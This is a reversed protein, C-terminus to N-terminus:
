IYKVVQVVTMECMFKIVIAKLRKVIKDINEKRQFKSRFMGNRQKIIRFNEVAIVSCHLSKLNPRGVQETSGQALNGEADRHDMWRSINNDWLQGM